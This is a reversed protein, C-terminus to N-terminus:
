YSHRSLPAAFRGLVAVRRLDNGAADDLHAVLVYLVIVEVHM